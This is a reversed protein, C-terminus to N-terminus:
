NGGPLDKADNKLAGLLTKAAEEVKAQGAGAIMLKRVEGFLTEVEAARKASINKRIATEMGSEEFIGFYSDTHLEKAKDLDKQKYATLMQQLTSEIKSVVDGWKSAQAFGQQPFCLPLAFFLALSLFSVSKAMADGQPPNFIIIFILSMM